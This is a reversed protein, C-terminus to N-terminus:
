DPRHIAYIRLFSVENEDKWVALVFGNRIELVRDLGSPMDVSGLWRGGADITDFVSASRTTRRLYTERRGVWLYGADDCIIERIAPLSDPIEFEDYRRLARRADRGGRGLSKRAEERAASRMENTIPRRPIPARVLEVLRGARDFVSVEWTDASAVYVRHDTGLCGPRTSSFPPAFARGDVRATWETPYRAIHTVSDGFAHILDFSRYWQTGEAGPDTEVGASLVTGDPLLQWTGIGPRGLSVGSLPNMLSLDSLVEGELSFWTFRQQQADWTVLTDPLAFAIAPRAKFEGPGGGYGGFRM